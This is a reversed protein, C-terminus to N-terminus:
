VEMVLLLCSEATVVVSNRLLELSQMTSYGPEREASEKIAIYLFSTLVCCLDSAMVFLCLQKTSYVVIEVSLSIVILHLM